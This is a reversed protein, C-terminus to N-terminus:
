SRDRAECDHCELELTAHAIGFRRALMAKLGDGRLQADHLSPEGDLVVHASLAPTESALDWVHVHHVERVGAQATIAEQVTAVSIGRPTGELLVQVTDRLLSWTSWLVLLGVLISVFPDVWDAGALLVALGAAIAGVSGAADLAM